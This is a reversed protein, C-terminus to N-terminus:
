AASGGCVTPVFFTVAVDAFFGVVFGGAVVAVFGV